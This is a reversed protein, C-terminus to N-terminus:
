RGSGPNRRATASNRARSRRATACSWSYRPWSVGNLFDPQQVAGAPRPRAARAPPPRRRSLARQWARRALDAGAGRPPNLMWVYDFADRPFRALAVSVPRWWEGRCKVDTVMQSPDHAFGRAAAYHVTLQQAGAMSWQDNTYALKRELLLAPVHELRSFAWVEYCTRGVFSVVRAGPPIHDLATLARDTADVGARVEAMTACDDPMLIDTM